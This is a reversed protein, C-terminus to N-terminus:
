PQSDKHPPPALPMSKREGRGWLFLSTEKEKLSDNSKNFIWLIQHSQDVQRRQIGLSPLSATFIIRM